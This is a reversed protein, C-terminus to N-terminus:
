ALRARAELLGHHVQLGIREARHLEDRVLGDAEDVAALCDTVATDTWKAMGLDVDVQVLGTRLWATITPESKLLSGM